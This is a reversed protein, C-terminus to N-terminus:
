LTRAKEMVALKLADEDTLGTIDAKIEKARNVVALADDEDLYIFKPDGNYGIAFSGGSFWLNMHDYDPLIMPPDGLAAVLARLKLGGQEDWSAFAIVQDPEVATEIFAEGAPHDGLHLYTGRAALPNNVFAEGKYVEVIKPQAPSGFVPDVFKVIYANAAETTDALPQEVLSFVSVTVTITLGAILVFLVFLRCAKPIEILFYQEVIKRFMKEVGEKIKKSPVNPFIGDM